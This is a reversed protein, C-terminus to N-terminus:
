WQRPVEWRVTLGISGGSRLPVLGPRWRGTKVVTGLLAGAAAGAVPMFVWIIGEAWSELGNCIQTGVNGGSCDSGGSVIAAGAIGVGAGIALGQLVHRHEEWVELSGVSSPSVSRLEGDPSVLSWKDSAMAALTGSVSDGDVTVRIMRGVTVEKAQAKTTAPVALLSLALLSGYRASM